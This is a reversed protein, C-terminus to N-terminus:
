YWLPRLHDSLKDVIQPDTGGLVGVGGLDEAFLKRMARAIDRKTIAKIRTPMARLDEIHSDFFYRSYANSVSQVTQLSRQFSGLAYQKANELEREDIIGNQIKKIEALVIDCLAPANDPLVQASLWWETVKNSIHHGSSVHYVLGRDRAQGFIRSYLTDTLMVRALGLADDDKQNIIENLHTSIILYINPVTENAIFTPSSPKKAKEEPLKFRAPGTPLDLEELLRKVNTRRGRLSGAVIFRLNRTFHTNKYHKILDERKVNKMLEVREFDTAVKFGFTQSMASSLARFHNNTYSVLEDRINGFEAEFEPQLFLPKTLSHYQLRLVREWEFDATEGVYAVSYYSTYANTYAGHKSVEAQFIQRDPYAENAGGWVVHEMIHPVEWKPMTVLYEGARFNFEYSTVSAGPVDILLGVAGNKLQIESVSHKM